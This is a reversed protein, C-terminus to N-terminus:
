IIQCVQKLRKPSPIGNPFAIPTRCNTLNNQQLQENSLRKRISSVFSSPVAAKGNNGVLNTCLKVQYIIGIINISLLIFAFNFPKWSILNKAKMELINKRATCTSHM